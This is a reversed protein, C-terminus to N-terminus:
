QFADLVSQGVNVREVERKDFIIKGYKGGGGLVIDFKEERFLLILGAIKENIRKIEEIPVDVLVSIESGFTKVLKNWANQITKAYINTTDLALSIIEALPAIRLYRPRHEPHKPTNYNSLEMIRDKVGKKIMGRCNPCRWKLEIAKELDFHSYCKICSTSHYKGLRPDLGVNLIVRRGNKREIAKIIEDYSVDELSIRNFERGLRHPWPSHCDSNSLFTIDKLEEIFDAHYTDASLGLELFKIKETNKGYCDKISDYEKYISTWPVFAHSPGLLAECESCLEAIEEGGLGVHPRGDKDIDESHEKLREKLAEIASIEPFFILHHVRRSDEVEATLVFKCGNKEFIGDECNLKKIENLWLAHLADGTGVVNLGKLVAQKSITEFEM